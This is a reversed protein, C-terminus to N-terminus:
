VTNFGRVDDGCKLNNLVCFNNMVEATASSIPGYAVRICKSDYYVNCDGIDEIPVAPYFVETNNNDDAIDHNQIMFTFFVASPLMLFLALQFPRRLMVAFNKIVLAFFQISWRYVEFYFGSRGKFQSKGFDVTPKTAEM